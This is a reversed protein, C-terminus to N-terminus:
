SKTLRSVHSAVDEPANGHQDDAHDSEAKAESKPNIRVLREGIGQWINSMVRGALDVGSFQLLGDAQDLSIVDVAVHVRLFQRMAGHLSEDGAEAIGERSVVVVVVSSNWEARVEPSGSAFPMTSSRRSSGPPNMVSASWTILSNTALPSVNSSRSRLPLTSRWSTLPSCM